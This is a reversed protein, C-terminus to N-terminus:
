QERIKKNKENVYESLPRLRLEGDVSHHECRDIYKAVIVPANTFNCSGFISNPTYCHECDKCTKM